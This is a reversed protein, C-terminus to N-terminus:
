ERIAGRPPRTSDGASAGAQWGLWAVAVTLAVLVVLSLVRSVGSLLALTGSSLGAFVLGVVPLVPAGCGVVSCPGTSLGLVGAFAGVIGGARSTSARWGALREPQRRSLVLAFYAAVLLSMALLSVLDMAAVAFGWVPFGYPGDATFWFVAVRSLFDIKQDPSASSILYRPLQALWPNFTFYTWPKRTIALLLPPLFVHLAFVGGVVALTTGPRARVATGIGRLTTTVVRAMGTAMKGFRSRFEDAM